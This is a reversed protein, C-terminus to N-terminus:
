KRHRSRRMRGLRKKNEERNKREINKREIYSRYKRDKRRGYFDFEYLDPIDEGSQIYFVFNEIESKSLLFLIRTNLKGREILKHKLLRYRFTSMETIVGKVDIYYRVDNYTLTFDPTITIASAGRIRLLPQEPNKEHKLYMRLRPKFTFELGANSMKEYAFLEMKSDFQLGYKEVRTSNVKKTIVKGRKGTSARSSKSDGTGVKAGCTTCYTNSGLSTFENGKCRNCIM